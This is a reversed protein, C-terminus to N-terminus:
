SEQEPEVAAPPEQVIEFDPDTWTQNKAFEKEIQSFRKNDQQEVWQAILKQMLTIPGIGLWEAYKEIRRKVKPHLRISTPTVQSRM